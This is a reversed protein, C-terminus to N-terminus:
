LFPMFEAKNKLLYFTDTMLVLLTIRLESYWKLVTRKGHVVRYLVFVTKDSIHELILSFFISNLYIRPKNDIMKRLLRLFEIRIGLM